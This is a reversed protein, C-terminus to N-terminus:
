GTVTCRGDRLTVGVDMAREPSHVEFALGRARDWRISSPHVGLQWAAHDRVALEDLKGRPEGSIGYVHEVLGPFWAAESIDQVTALTTPPTAPGKCRRFLTAEPVAHRDRMFATRAAASLKGLRTAPFLTYDLVGDAVVHGGLHIQFSVSLGGHADAFGRLLVIAASWENAPAYLNLIRLATPYGITDAQIGPVWSALSDNPLSQTVADLLVPDFAERTDPADAAPTPSALEAIAVGAGRHLRKLAQFAPGHFLMGDAYLDPGGEKPAHVLQDAQLGTWAAPAPAYDPAFALQGEALPTFGASDPSPSPQWADLWVHAPRQHSQRTRLILSGERAVGWRLMRLSQVAVLRQEPGPRNSGLVLFLAAGALPLAPLTYTPRHDALWTGEGAALAMQPGIRPADTADEAVLGLEAEYLKRGDAWLTGRARVSVRGASITGGRELVEVIVQVTATTPTVQGRYRWTLKGCDGAQRFYPNTMGQTMGFAVMAHRLLEGMAQLGLSGPQVPDGHFHARFFWASPSVEVDARALGLGCRGGDPWLGTVQRLMGLRDREVPRTATPPRALIALEDPGPRLGAQAVLAAAPFFGFSSTLKIAMRTGQRGEVSFSVITMDGIHSHGTLEVRTVLPGAGRRVTELIECDGDLNRFFLTETTRLPIGAFTALWGCPQLAAELLPALSMVGLPGETFWADDPIECLAEVSMGDRMVGLEGDVAVIRSVFHFPPAPLRPLSQGDDFRAFRPGFAHSPRGLACALLTDQTFQVGDVEAVTLSAELPAAGKAGSILPWDPVLRLAMRRCHFAKLGDVTCLLDAYLTPTEGGVVEEVFVEYVLDRASPAAQGRCRLKFTEGPVPEFRWGDRPLTFGLAAIHFAMAQLCGEFMVTGPMCPDNLFHGEFFWDGPDLRRMARLYGRGWPGGSPEFVDVEHLLLLRGGPLGPTRTHSAAAAHSDGFCAHADGTALALVQEWGFRRRSSPAPPVALRAKDHPLHDATAADWLVGESAALEADTFFGAQGNVVELLPRGDSEAEYSFFFLGVDGHRAHGDVKITYRLRQGQEPLPGLFRLDCGLLRYVRESRNALDAGLWSILLLDAQGAEIVYGPQMRGLHLYWAAPKVDTETVIRGLGMSLPAGDIEMVRDVLLLPPAPMRVLRRYGDLAAFEPGLVTALPGTALAELANRDFLPLMAAAAKGDPTPFTVPQDALHPPAGHSSLLAAESTAMFRQLLDTTLALHHRHATTMAAHADLLDSQGGAIMPAAIIDTAAAQAPPLAPAALLLRPVGLDELSIAPPHAATLLHGTRNRPQRVPCTGSAEEARPALRGAVAAWDLTVGAAALSGCADLLQEVAGRGHEDLAVALYPKGQLTRHIARTCNSRPGHEIFIRVGDEWARLITAPFDVTGLAQRTLADAVTATDALYSRNWANGYIRLGDVPAVSRTHLGKWLLEIPEVVPAHCALDFGARIMRGHGLRGALTMCADASGGVLCDSASNLITLYIAPIDRMAARVREPTDSVYWNEWAMGPLGQQTWHARAAQHQGALHVDYLGSAQVERLMGGMDDWLGLAFLANTEGSSLGLLAHPRLGLTGLTLEAHVQCLFSSGCLQQYDNPLITGDHAWGALERLPVCRAHLREALEPFARLLDDGMGPYAAAAGTFVFATEGGALEQALAPDLAPARPVHHAGIAPRPLAPAASRVIVAAVEGGLATLDIRAARGAEGPLWPATGSETPWLAYRIGAVCGAVELLGSAAHAHGVARGAIGAPWGPLAADRPARGGAAAMGAEITALITEGLARAESVRRLALVVAGDGPQHRSAPLLHAVAAAHVPEAALDVAGVIALDAEGSRLARIAIELARIGSLEEAAVTFGPGDLDLAANIRNAPMNPMCGAVEAAGLRAVGTAAPDVDPLLEPLRLRFAHRAAEADCQAGIVTITRGAPRMSLGALAEAALLGPLLQQPLARALDAPPTRFLDPPIEVTQLAGGGSTGLCDVLGAASDAHATRLAMGVIAIGEEPRSISRRTSPAPRSTSPGEMVMHANNGGFGFASVAALRAAQGSWAMPAELLRFPSNDLSASRPGDLRMPPLMGRHLAFVAKIAGAAGAATVPHGIQAKISGIPLTTPRDQQIEALAEMETADGRATGTAHCEVFGIDHPAVQAALLAAAIARRQGAASPALLGGARGDNSLGVGRIVALVRNGAAYARDLRRLLLVAAGEAPVLGDAEAHFPRSRGTPSMAGLAQFGAQLVLPDIANVGGVLMLEAEDDALREAALKIAYLSSACAADLAFCARGLGLHRGLLHVPLGSSFRDAARSPAVEGLWIDEAWAALGRTPYSLNGLIAGAGDLIADGPSFGAQRLAQLSAALPWALVPDKVGPLGGALPLQGSPLIGGAVFGGSGPIHQGIGLRAASARWREPPADGLACGGSLALDWLQEADTAGPLVCGLGIVAVPVQSV